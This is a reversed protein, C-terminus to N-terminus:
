LCVRGSPANVRCASREALLRQEDIGLEILPHLRLKREVADLPGTFPPTDKNEQRMNQWKELEDRNVYFMVLADRDITSSFGHYSYFHPVFVCASNARYRAPYHPTLRKDYLITANRAEEGAPVSNEPIYFVFSMFKPPIDIHINQFRGAKTYVYEFEDHISLSEPLEGTPSIYFKRLLAQKIEPDSFVARLCDAVDDTNQYLNYRRNMFAPNDQHRDQVSDSYKCSVM